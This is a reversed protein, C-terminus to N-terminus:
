EPFRFQRAVLQELNQFRCYDRVDKVRYLEDDHAGRLKSATHLVNIYALIMILWQAIM